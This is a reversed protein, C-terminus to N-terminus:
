ILTHRQRAPTSRGASPTAKRYRKYPASKQPKAYDKTEQKAAEANASGSRAVFITMKCWKNTFIKELAKLKNWIAEQYRFSGIKASSPGQQSPAFGLFSRLLAVFGVQVLLM